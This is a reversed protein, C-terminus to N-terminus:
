RKLKLMARLDELHYKTAELQGEIKHDNDTKIGQRSLEEACAKLFEQDEHYLILTPVIRMNQQQELYEIEGDSRVKGIWLKGDEREHVLAIHLGRGLDARDFWVKLAM